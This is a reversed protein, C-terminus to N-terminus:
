LKQLAEVPKLSVAKYAPYAAGVITTIFVGVSVIIYVSPELYPYLDSSYGFAELGESYETLDVGREHYYSVNFYGLILGFPTGVLGLFVTEVVIMFFVKSKNMGVAMLMGLEKIRELVAMLMTNIIGFVLAILIIAMLIYLMNGFTESIYALDPSIEKWDQILDEKYTKKYESIIDQEESQTHTLAAIEHYNQDIGLLTQIDSDRVFATGENLNVASSKIIGVVRFAGSIMEGDKDSFTLVIKSRIKVHLEEALKSGIIVPNRKVGEFYKGEVLISDLHTVQRETEINLGRIEVGSAKKASAIMGNLIVRQTVAIVGPIQQLYESKEIADPIYYNVDRDEHFIPHHIQINSTNYNIQDSIYSVIFGNMFGTGAVLAWVGVAISSIVILSRSRNRWVNRWAIKVLM